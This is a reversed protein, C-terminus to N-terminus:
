AARDLPRRTTRVDHGSTRLAAQRAKQEARAVDVHNYMARGRDNLGVVKLYGKRVWSRITAPTVRMIKAAQSATVLGDPDLVLDDGDPM